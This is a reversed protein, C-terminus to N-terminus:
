PSEDADTQDGLLRDNCARQFIDLARPSVRSVGPSEPLSRSVGAVGARTSSDSSDGCDGVPMMQCAHVDGLAFLAGPEFVPFLATVGAQFGNWDM